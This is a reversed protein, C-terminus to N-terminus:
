FRCRRRRLKASELRTAIAPHDRKLKAIRYTAATGRDNQKTINETKDGVLYQNSCHKSDNLVPVAKAKEALWL